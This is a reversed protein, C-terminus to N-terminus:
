EVQSIDSSPLEARFVRERTKADLIFVLGDGSITPQTLILGQWEFVEPRGPVHVAEAVFSAWLQAQVEISRLSSPVTSSSAADQASDAVYMGGAGMVSHATLQREVPPTNQLVDFPLHGRLSGRLQSISSSRCTAMMMGPFRRALSALQFADAGHPKDHHVRALVVVALFLLARHARVLRSAAPRARERRAQDGTCLVDEAYAESGKM